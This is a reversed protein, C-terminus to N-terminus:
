DEFNNGHDMVLRILILDLPHGPHLDLHCTISYGELFVTTDRGSDLGRMDQNVSRDLSVGESKGLVQGNGADVIVKHITEDTPNAVLYTYAFYGQTV